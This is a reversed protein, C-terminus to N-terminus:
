WISAMLKPSLTRRLRGLRWLEGPRRGKPRSSQGLKEFREFLGNLIPHVPNKSWLTAPRGRQGAATARCILGLTMLQELALDIREKSVHRNFLARLQARCLGGPTVELAQIIRRATPDIPATDFLLRASASCYYV